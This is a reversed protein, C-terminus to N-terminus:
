YSPCIRDYWKITRLWSSLRKFDQKNVRFEADGNFSPYMFSGYSYTYVEIIFGLLNFTKTKMIIHTLSYTIAIDNV